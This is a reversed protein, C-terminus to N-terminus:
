DKPVKTAEKAMRLFLLQRKDPPIESFDFRNVKGNAMVVFLSHLNKTGSAHRPLSDALLGWDSLPFDRPENWAINSDPWEVVMITRSPDSTVEALKVAEAKPWMTDKGVVAVYQTVGAGSPHDQWAMPCRFAVPTHRAVKQNHQSNWPEDLNFQEYLDQESMYPLILVRWSHLPQGYTDTTYAPPFSSNVDHYAQLASSIQRLNTFCQGDRKITRMQGFPGSPLLVCGGILCAIVFASATAVSRLAWYIAIAISTVSAVIVPLVAGPDFQRAIVMWATATVIVVAVVGLRYRGAVFHAARDTM